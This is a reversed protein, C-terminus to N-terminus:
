GEDALMTKLWCYLTDGIQKYGNPSPHTGNNVRTVPDTSRANRPSTWTPYHHDADLNVNAPVLFINEGERGGYREVLREMLRHHNRRYQWATQKRSGAYNRFGDQSRSAPGVLVIGIKTEARVQHIMAVLQDYHGLARDIRAEVTTDDERFIDNPGLHITAVDPGVGGNFEDCYRQFDLGVGGDDDEYLFPSGTAPRKVIGSRSLPGHMTAFAQATWGSYGEHRLPGEPPGNGPGRSGLLILAVQPDAAALDLLHRPYLGAETLSAGILLVTASRESGTGPLSVLIVSSARAVVENAENFVAITIPYEGVEDATPTYTWRNQMQVGKSCTVDFAYNAPNLILGLNEFYINSEIGPAAYITPPLLLRIRGPFDPAGSGASEGEQAHLPSPEVMGLLAWCLGVCLLIKKLELM